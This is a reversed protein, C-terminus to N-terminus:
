EVIYRLIVRTIGYGPHGPNRSQVWNTTSALFSIRTLQRCL